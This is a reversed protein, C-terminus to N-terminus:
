PGGAAETPSSSTTIGRTWPRSSTTSKSSPSPRTWMPPKIATTNLKVRGRDQRTAPFKLQMVGIFLGKENMGDLVLYPTMILPSIDSKGDTLFGKPMPLFGMDAMGLARYDSAPSTRILMTHPDHRFDLNRGVLVHGKKSRATFITCNGGAKPKPLREVFLKKQLLKQLDEGTVASEATVADLRYDAKYDLTYFSHDRYIEKLTSVTALQDPLRLYKAPDSM